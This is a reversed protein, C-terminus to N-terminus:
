FRMIVGSDRQFDPTERVSKGVTTKELMVDRGFLVQLQEIALFDRLTLLTKRIFLNVMTGLSLLFIFFSFMHFGLGCLWM